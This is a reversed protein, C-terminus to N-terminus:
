IALYFALLNGQRLLQVRLFSKEVRESKLMSVAYAVALYTKGTGAVGTAFVIENHRM